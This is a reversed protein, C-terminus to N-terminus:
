LNRRIRELAAELRFPTEYKERVHFRIALEDEVIRGEKEPLGISVMRVNPDFLHPRPADATRHAEVAVLRETEVRQAEVQAELLMVRQELQDVHQKSNARRWEILFGGVLALGALISTVTETM